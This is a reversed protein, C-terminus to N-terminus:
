RGQSALRLDETVTIFSNNRTSNATRALLSRTLEESSFTKDALGPSRPWPLHHM